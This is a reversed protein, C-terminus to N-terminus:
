SSSPSRPIQFPKRSEQKLFLISESDEKKIYGLNILVNAIGLREGMAEEITRQTRLAQDLQDVTLRDIKVLYEGLRIRGALYDITGSIVTSQPAELLNLTLAQALADACQALSWENLVTIDIVSKRRRVQHLLRLVPGPPRQDAKEMDEIGRRNIEPVWLQLTHEPSFAQLTSPSLALELEQRIRTYVVQKVWLPLRSIQKILADFATLELNEM